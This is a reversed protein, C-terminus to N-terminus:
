GQTLVPKDQPPEPVPWECTAVGDFQVRAWIAREEDNSSKVCLWLSVLGQPTPDHEDPQLPSLVVFDGVMGECPLGQQGFAPGLNFQDFGAM